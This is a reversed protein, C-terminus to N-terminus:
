IHINDMTDKLIMEPDAGVIDLNEAKVCVTEPIGYFTDALAKVYDYGFNNAGIPGGATTVYIIRGARCMGKPVGEPTYYFTVGTVTVLELYARLVAPFLLDWYPAAIVIEDAQAFQRAYRFIEEAFDGAAVYGNRRQLRDNNLPLLQEEEYLQVKVNEGQLQELVHRALRRTRSEPRACADIFLIKKM